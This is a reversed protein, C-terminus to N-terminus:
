PLAQAVHEGEHRGGRGVGQLFALVIAPCHRGRGHVQTSAKTQGNETLQGGRVVLAATCCVSWWQAQGIDTMGTDLCERSLFALQQSVKQEKVEETGLTQSAWGHSQYSRTDWQCVSSCNGRFASYGPAELMLNDEQGSSPLRTSQTGWEGGWRWSNRWRQLLM